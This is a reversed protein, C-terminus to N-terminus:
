IPTTVLGDLESFRAMVGVPAAFRTASGPCFCTQTM